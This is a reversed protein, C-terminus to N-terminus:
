IARYRITGFIWLEYIILNKKLKVRIVGKGLAWGKSYSSKDLLM